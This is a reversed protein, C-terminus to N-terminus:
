RSHPRGSRASARRERCVVGRDGQPSVGYPMGWWHKAFWHRECKRPTQWRTNRNGAFPTRGLIGAFSEAMRRERNSRTVAISRMRPAATECQAIHFSPHPLWRWPSRGCTCMEHGRPLVHTVSSCRDGQQWWAGTGHSCPMATKTLSSSKGRSCDSAPARSERHSAESTASISPGAGIGVPSQRSFPTALGGEFRREPSALRGCWSRTHAGGCRRVARHVTEHSQSRSHPALKEGPHGMAHNEGHPRVGAALGTM